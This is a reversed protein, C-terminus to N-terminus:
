ATTTLEHYLKNIKRAAKGWTMEKIEDHGNKSLSSALSGYRLISCIAGALLKTNWFDVKIAHPMVEAVGSQKSLIVPVGGQIAELPTIGFPESVSPMVYVNTMSWLKETEEKKLFGTFHFHASLKLQAVREVMQPLLDGSGAVVFHAEPFEEIVKKAAEVFYMPGKQFTIRGLFTIIHSGIPIKTAPTKKEKSVIGNHVVEVKEPKVGYHRIIINATWQSVAVIRDAERMGESEIDFIHKNVQSGSRDYETAHVHIVLPKNSIKKAAIGAPFTLWDHAHIVDFTNRDAVCEAVEAYHVVETFLNPGYTGSFSHTPENIKEETTESTTERQTQPLRYNWNLISSEHYFHESQYPSLAADISVTEIAREGSTTTESHSTTTSTKTAYRPRQLPVKSANILSVDGNTEGGFLRPIVFLVQVGEDYLSNTLGHCATGLGGSIHPPFEWGFM